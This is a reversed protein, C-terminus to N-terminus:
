IGSDLAGLWNIKKQSTMVTRLLTAFTMNKCADTQGCPTPTDAETCAPIGGGPLLCGGQLLGGQVSVARLLCVDGLPVSVGLPLCGGSCVGGLASVRRLPVSVGWASVGRLLGGSCVGGLASMGGLSCVHGGPLLCVCGWPASVGWLLCWGPLLCGGRASM